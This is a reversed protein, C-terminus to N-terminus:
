EHYLTSPLKSLKEPTGVVITKDVVKYTLNGPQTRLILDIAGFGPVGQANMQVTGSTGPSLYLNYNMQKDIDQLVKALPTGNAKVSVLREKAASQGFLLLMIFLSARLYKM